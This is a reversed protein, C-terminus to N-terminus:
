QLKIEIPIREIIEEFISNLSIEKMIIDQESNSPLMRILCLTQNLHYRAKKGPLPYKHKRMHTVPFCDQYESPLEKWHLKSYNKATNNVEYEDMVPNKNCIFPKIKNIRESKDMYDWNKPHYPYLLAGFNADLNTMYALMKNISDSVSSSSKSYNKADFVAIIVNGLMATFDPKHIQIWSHDSETFIKEYWFTIINDDYQFKCYPTVGLQFDILLRKEYLFEVFEMFIWIEYMTDVNTIPEIIHRSPTSQSINEMDLERFEEIWDLLLGYNLNRVLGLNLRNKTEQELQIIRRDNYSLSSYRRSSNLVSIIPFKQLIIRTQKSIYRLIDKNYETLPEDFKTNLLRTSERHMWEGCLVLLINESTDFEKRRLDSSFILPFKNRSNTLTKTWDIKGKIFPVFHQIRTNDFHIQDVIRKFISFYSNYLLLLRNLEALCNPIRFTGEENKIDFYQSYTHRHKLILSLSRDYMYQKIEPDIQLVVRVLQHWQWDHEHYKSLRFLNKLEKNEPLDIFVDGEDALLSLKINGGQPNHLWKIRRSNKRLINL